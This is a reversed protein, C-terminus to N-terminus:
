GVDANLAGLAPTLDMRECIWAAGPYGGLTYTLESCTGIGPVLKRVRFAEIGPMDAEEVVGM